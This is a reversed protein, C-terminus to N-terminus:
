ALGDIIELKDGGGRPSGGDEEEELAGVHQAKDEQEIQASGSQTSDEEGLLVSSRQVDYKGRIM